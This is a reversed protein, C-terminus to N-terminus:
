TETVQAKDPTLLMSEACLRFPRDRLMRSPATSATSVLDADMSYNENRCHLPRVVVTGGAGQGARHFVSSKMTATPDGRPTKSQIINWRLRPVVLMKTLTDASM